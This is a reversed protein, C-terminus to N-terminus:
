CDVRMVVMFLATAIPTYFCSVMLPWNCWYVMLFSFFVTLVIYIFYGVVLLIFNANAAATKTADSWEEGCFCCPTCAKMGLIGEMGGEDGKDVVGVKSSM